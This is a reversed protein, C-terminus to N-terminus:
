VKVGGVLCGQSEFDSKVEKSASSYSEERKRQNAPSKKPKEKWGRSDNNGGRGQM